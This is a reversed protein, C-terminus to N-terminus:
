QGLRSAHPMRLKAMTIVLKRERKREKERKEEDKAKSGSQLIERTRFLKEGLIKAYSSSIHLFFPWKRGIKRSPWRETVAAQAVRLGQLIRLIREFHRHEHTRCNVRCWLTLETRWRGGLWIIWQITNYKSEWVYHKLSEAALQRDILPCSCM